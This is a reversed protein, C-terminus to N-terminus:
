SIWQYIASVTLEGKEQLAHEILETYTFPPKKPGNSRASSFNRSDIGSAPYTAQNTDQRYVSSNEHSGHGRRVDSAYNSGYSRGNPKNKNGSFACNAASGYINDLTDMSM